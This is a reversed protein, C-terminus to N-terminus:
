NKIEDFYIDTGLNFTIKKIVKGTYTRDYDKLELVDDVLIETLFMPCAIHHDSVIVDGTSRTNRNATRYGFNICNQEFTIFNGEADFMPHYNSMKVCVLSVTDYIFDGDDNTIPMGDEGKRARKISLTHPFRPNFM